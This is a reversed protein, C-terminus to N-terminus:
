PLVLRHVLEAASLAVDFHEALIPLQSVYCAVAAAKDVPAAAIAVDSLSCGVVDLRELAAAREGPFALHYPIEEYVLWTLGPRRQAVGLAAGATTVHDPHLIGLPILWTEVASEAVATEIALSAAAELGGAPESFCYLPDRYQYDWLELHRGRAGVVALAADDEIRRCEVVDDGAEFCGSSADWPGLPDVPRPGGAFVSVVLSGPHAALVHACSLVADDLHPSIVGIVGAEGAARDM